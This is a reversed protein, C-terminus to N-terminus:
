RTVGALLDKLERQPCLEGPELSLYGHAQCGGHHDFDCDDPDALAELLNRPVTLTDTMPRERRDTETAAGSRVARAAAAEALSKELAAMLDTM